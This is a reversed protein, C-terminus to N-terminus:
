GFNNFQSQGRFGVTFIEKQTDRINIDRRLRGDQVTDPAIYTGRSFRYRTRNRIDNDKRKSYMVNLFLHSGHKIKYDITSFLGTRIRNANLNVYKLDDDGVVWANYPSEMNGTEIEKWSYIEIGDRTNSTNYFSAGAVLGLRGDKYIDNSFFRQSYSFNILSPMKNSLSAYGTGIDAKFIASTYRAVMPVLNIIGAISNGNMDPTVSKIVEMSSIQSVPLIDLQEARNGNEQSSSIPEQNITVMAYNSPTGRLQVTSGEGRDRSINIGSVRQLAEAINMDPFRGILESSVINRIGDSTLQQNLAKLQGGSSGTVTVSELDLGRKLGILFRTKGRILNVITDVKEFGIYSIIIRAPGTKVKEIAFEGNLNTSSGTNTGELVFSAGPLPDFTEADYIKGSISTELEKRKAYQRNKEKYLLIHRGVQRIKLLEDLELQESFIDVLIAELTLSNYDRKIIFNQDIDDTSYVFLFSSQLEINTIVEGLTKGKSHLSLRFTKLSKVQSFAKRDTIIAFCFLCILIKIFKISL